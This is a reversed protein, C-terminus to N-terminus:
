FIFQVGPIELRVDGESDVYFPVETLREGDAFLEAYGDRGDETWLVASFEAGTGEWHQIDIVKHGNANTRVSVDCPFSSTSGQGDFLMWCRQMAAQAPQIGAPNFLCCATVSAAALLKKLM